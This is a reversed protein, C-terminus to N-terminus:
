KKLLKNLKTGPKCIDGAIKDLEDVLRSRCDATTRCGALADRIRRYIEEHYDQPHPGQHKIVYVINSLDQLDMGAKRFFDEFLPTWPGGNTDSINNKDTAIHHRQASGKNSEPRCDGTTRASAMAGMGAATTAVASVGMLVATGKAVDVATATAEAVPVMVVQGQPTRAAFMTPIKLVSKLNQLSAYPAAKSAVGGAVMTMIRVGAQGMSEGFRRAASELEAMTTAANVEEYFRMFARSLNIIEAVGYLAMLSITITTATSKTFVPEPALWLALYTIGAVVLATVVTRSSFLEATGARVGEPMYKVSLTLAKFFKDDPISDPLSVTPTGYIETYKTFIRFWKERAEVGLDTVHAVERWSRSLMLPAMEETSDLAEELTEVFARAEEPTLRERAADTLLPRFALTVYPQGRWTGEEKVEIQEASAPERALREHHACSLLMLSLVLTMHPRL